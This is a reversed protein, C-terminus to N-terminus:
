SSAGERKHKKFYVLLGVGVVSVVAVFAIAVSMASSPETEGTEDVNTGDPLEQIAVPKILPYGDQNNEDIIHPTDWIGSSAIEEAEPHQSAYDSWYNGGISIGNDWINKSPSPTGPFNQDPADWSVDYVQESNNLFNNNYILNSSSAVFYVGKGQDAIRNQTITNNSSYFLSIGGRNRTIWNGSVINQNSYFFVIGEGNNSNINNNTIKNNSSSALTVGHGYNNSIDNNKIQSDTTFALMIGQTNMTLNEVIIRKCNILALYGANPYTLPNVTLDTKNTLYYIKKSNITNSDDIDNIFSSLSSRYSVEFGIGVSEVRNNRLVNNSSTDLFIGGSNIITNLSIANGECNFLAISGSSGFYTDTLKNFDTINNSIIQNYNSSSRIDIGQPLYNEEFINYSSHYLDVYGLNNRSFVNHDSHSLSVGEFKKSKVINETIENNSSSEFGIGVGAETDIKNGSIVSGDSGRIRIGKYKAQIENYLIRCGSGYVEIANVEANIKFNKIEVNDGNVQYIEGLTFGAGDIVIASAEIVISGQELNSTLTYVNGNRQISTTGEVDGEATISILIPQATVNPLVALQVLVITFSLNLIVCLLAAKKM